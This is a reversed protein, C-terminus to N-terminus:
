SAKQFMLRIALAIFIVGSLRNVWRSARSFLNRMAPTTMFLSVLVFWAILVTSMAIGYGFKIQMPTSLAVFSSFISLFFFVAKPNLINVAFGLIFAKKLSQKLPSQNELNTVVINTGKALVAKIGIFILYVVGVWKIFNFLFISQSIILGLGLVTYTVHVLLATGVGFSTMMANKRGYILSQRLVMALDAAPSVASFCLVLMLTSFEALYTHM